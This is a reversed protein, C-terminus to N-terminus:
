SPAVATTEACGDIDAKSYTEAPEPTFPEPIVGRYIAEVSSIRAEKPM